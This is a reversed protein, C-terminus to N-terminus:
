DPLPAFEPLRRDAFVCALPDGVHPEFEPEAARYVREFHTDWCESLVVPGELTHLRLDGRGAGDEQWRSRLEWTRGEADQSTWQLDGEQGSVRVSRALIDARPEGQRAAFGRFDLDLTQMAEDREFVAVVLGSGFSSGLRRMADLDFGLSGRGRGLGQGPEFEGTIVAVFPAETRRPRQEFAYVFREDVREIRLQSELPDLAGAFPGWRRSDATRETPPLAIGDGLGRLTGFVEADVALTFSRTALYLEATQAGLAQAKTGLGEGLAPSLRLEQLAPLAAVFAADEDFLRNSFEDGCGSAALTLLSALISPRVNM